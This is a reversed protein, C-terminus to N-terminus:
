QPFNKAVFNSRIERIELERQVYTLDVELDKSESKNRRAQNIRDRLVAQMRELDTTEMVALEDFNGVRM